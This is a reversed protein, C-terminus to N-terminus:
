QPAGGDWAIPYAAAWHQPNARISASWRDALLQLVKLDGALGADPDAPAIAPEVEVRWRRPGRPLVTFTVIPSRGLRALTAVGLPLRAWGDLFRVRGLSAAHQANDGLLLIAEGRRLLRTAALAAHTPYLVTLGVAARAHEIAWALWDDAVIVTTPVPVHAAPVATAVEWGGLHTGAIILGNGEAATNQAHDMGVLEVTDLFADPRGLAWLLDASRRAENVLEHRVLRRVTSSTASADVAHALNTALLARKRPRAVWELTGGLRALAHALSAPVRAGAWAAAAIVAALVRAARRGPRVRPRNM